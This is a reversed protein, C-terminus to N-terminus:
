FTNTLLSELPNSFYHTLLYVIGGILGVELQPSLGMVSSSELSGMVYNYLYSYIVVNSVLKFMVNQISDESNKPFINDIVSNKLVNTSLLSVAMILSDYLKEQNNFNSKTFWDYGFVIMGGFIPASAYHMLQLSLPM